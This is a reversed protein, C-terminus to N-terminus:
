EAKAAARREAILSEVVGEPLSGGYLGAVLEQLAVSPTQSGKDACVRELITRAESEPSRGARAARERIRSLVADPLDPITLDAM